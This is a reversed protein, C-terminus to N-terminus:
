QIPRRPVRRAIDAQIALAPQRHVLQQRVPNREFGDVFAEVPQVFALRNALQHRELRSAATSLNRATFFPDSGKLIANRGELKM